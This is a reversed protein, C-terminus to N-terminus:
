RVGSSFLDAYEDADQILRDMAAQTRQVSQGRKAPQPKRRRRQQVDVVGGGDLRDFGGYDAGRYVSPARQLRATAQAGSWAAVWAAAASFDKTFPANEDAFEDDADHPADSLQEAPPASAPAPIPAAGAATGVVAGAAPVALPVGVGAGVDGAGAAAAAAPPQEAQPSRPDVFIPQAVDLDRIGSAGIMVGRVACM